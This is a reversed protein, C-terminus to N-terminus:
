TTQNGFEPKPVVEKGSAPAETNLIGLCLKPMLLVYSVISAQQFQHHILISYDM